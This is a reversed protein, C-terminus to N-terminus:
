SVMLLLMSITTAVVMLISVCIFSIHDIRKAINKWNMTAHNDMVANLSQYM